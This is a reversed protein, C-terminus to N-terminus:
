NLAKKRAEREKLAEIGAVHMGILLFGYVFDDAPISFVRWGTNHEPNYWVIQDMILSAENHLLPYETFDIGTLVGNSIIFPFLFLVFYALWFDATWSKHKRIVWILGFLTSLATIGIYLRDSYNLVLLFCVIAGAANLTTDANKLPNRKVYARLAFYTFVSAYPICFFFLCEEIPLGLLSPGLLYDENFSWVGAQTFLADWVIFLFGVVLNVPFFYKWEKYFSVKRDFSLLFTSALVVVDILLYLGHSNINEMM